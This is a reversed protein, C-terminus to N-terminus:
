APVPAKVPAMAAFNEVMHRVARDIGSHYVFRDVVGAFLGEREYEVDITFLTGGGAREFRYWWDSTGREAAFRLHLLEPPTVDLVTARCSTSQGLLDIIADFTTGARHLPEAVRFYEFYPNWERLRDAQLAFEFAHEIPTEVRIQHHARNTIANM